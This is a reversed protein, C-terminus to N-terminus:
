GTRGKLHGDGARAGRWLWERGRIPKICYRAFLGASTLPHGEMRYAVLAAVFLLALPGMMWIWAAGLESLGTEDLVPLVAYTAAVAVLTPVGFFLLSMRFSM